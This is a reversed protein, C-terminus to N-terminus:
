LGRVARGTLPDRGRQPSGCPLSNRQSPNRQPFPTSRRGHHGLNRTVLDDPNQREVVVDRHQPRELPEQGRAPEVHSREDHSVLRDAGQAPIRAAVVDEQEIAEESGPDVPEIHQDLRTLDRRIQRDDHQGAVVAAHGGRGRELCAGEIVQLLRDLVHLDDREGEQAGAVVAAQLPPRADELLLDLEAVLELEHDAGRRRDALHEGGDRLHGLGVDADEDVALAPGALLQGRAGNVVPARPRAAREDGEVAARDRLGEDVALQEAVRAAGEGARGLGAGPHEALRVTPGHEEVLDALDRQRHLLPEQAHQLLV